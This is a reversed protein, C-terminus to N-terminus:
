LTVDSFDIKENNSVENTVVEKKAEVIRGTIGYFTRWYAYQSRAMAPNLGETAAFRQVVVGALQTSRNEEIWDTCFDWIIRTKGGEKPMRQGNREPMQPKKVKPAAAEKEEQNSAAIWNLGMAAIGKVASKKVQKATEETVVKDVVENIKENSIVVEESLAKEIAVANWTFKEGQPEVTFHEGMVADIGEKKFAAIAARKTNPRNTYAKTTSLM